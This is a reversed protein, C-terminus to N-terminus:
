LTSNALQYCRTVASPTRHVAQEADIVVDDLRRIDPRSADGRLVPLGRRVHDLGLAALEPDVLALALDRHPQVGHGALRALLPAHLRGPEGVHDRAAVVRRARALSRRASPMKALTLKGVSGPKPPRFNMVNWSLSSAFTQTSAHFSKTSSSHHARPAPSTRASSSRAATPRRARRRPFALAARALPLLASHKTSSGPASPSDPRARRVSPAASAATRLLGAGRHAHVDPRGPGRREVRARRRDDLDGRGERVGAPARDVHHALGIGRLNGSMLNTQLSPPM